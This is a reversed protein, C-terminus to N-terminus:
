KAQSGEPPHPQAQLGRRIAEIKELYGQKARRHALLQLPNRSGPTSRERAM